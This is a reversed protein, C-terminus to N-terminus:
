QTGSGSLQYTGGAKREATRARTFAPPDDGGHRGNIPKRIPPRRRHCMICYEMGRRTGGHFSLQDHCGNCSATEIMDRTVTVATRGPVFNLVDTSYNNPM